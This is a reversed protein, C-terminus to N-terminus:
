EELGVVKWGRDTKAALLVQNSKGGDPFTCEESLALLDPRREAKNVVVCTIGEFNPFGNDAIEKRFSLELVEATKAVIEDDVTEAPMKKLMLRAEITFDKAAVAAEIDKRRYADELGQLAEEPTAYNAQTQASAPV